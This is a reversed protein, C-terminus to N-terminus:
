TPGAGCPAKHAIYTVLLLLSLSLFLLLCFTNLTFLHTVQEGEERRWVGGGGLKERSVAEFYAVGRWAPRLGTDWSACRHAARRPPRNM